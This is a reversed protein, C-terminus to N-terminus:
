GRAASGTETARRGFAGASSWTEPSLRPHCRILGAVSTRASGESQGGGPDLRGVLGRHEHEWPELLDDELGTPLLAPILCFGGSRVVTVAGPKAFPGEVELHIAQSTVARSCRRRPDVPRDQSSGPLQHLAAEHATAVGGRDDHHISMLRAIREREVARNACGSGQAEM